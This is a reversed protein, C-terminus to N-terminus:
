FWSRPHGHSLKWLPWAPCRTDHHSERAKIRSLTIIHLWHETVLDCDTMSISPWCLPGSQLRLVWYSRLIRLCDLGLHNYRLTILQYAVKPLPNSDGTIEQLERFRLVENTAFYKGLTNEIRFARRYFSVVAAHVYRCTRSYAILSAPTLFGFILNDM